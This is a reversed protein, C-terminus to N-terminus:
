PAASSIAQGATERMGFRRDVYRLQAPMEDRWLRWSHRGPYEAYSVDAGARALLDAFATSRGRERDALGVYLSAHFPYRHLQPRLGDVYEGPSNAALEAASARAFPGTRKQRFYGSWSDAIGFTGLHRLAINVAGYAGESNGGIARDSRDRLAAFRADVQRVTELVLSEYRGHRTNAWETDSRYSGDRGDPMVLLMPRLEGRAIGVDLDVAGNAIDVFQRPWGPAGHLLYFAPFRRGTAAAAAYGPPLYVLFTRRARLARSHFSVTVLQGRPIGAPDRPPDYGRYVEYNHAYSTVGYLGAALWALALLAAVARRRGRM